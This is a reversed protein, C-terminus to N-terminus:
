PLQEEVWRLPNSVRVQLKDYHKQTFKLLQDDVTLFVDVGAHEACAIHLADASKLGFAMLERARRYDSKCVRIHENMLSLLDLVKRCREIDPTLAIELKLLDSSVGCWIGNEVYALITEIAETELHIRTQRQDDFPRNLCCADFYIRM